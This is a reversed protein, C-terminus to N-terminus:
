QVCIICSTVLVDCRVLTRGVRMGSRGYVQPDTQKVLQGMNDTWDMDSILKLQNFHQTKVVQLLLFPNRFHWFSQSARVLSSIFLMILCGGVDVVISAVSILSRVISGM